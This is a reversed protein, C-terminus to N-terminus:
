QAVRDLAAQVCSRMSDSMNVAKLTRADVWMYQDHEERDLVVEGPAGEVLFNFQRVRPKKDTTYEFGDFMALVRTPKLDTEEQLERLAAEVIGEGEDVGGGPLEYEGGLFDHAARRVILIKGDRLVAVGTSLHTMGDQKAQARLAAEDISFQQMAVM